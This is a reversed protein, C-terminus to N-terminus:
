AKVESSREKLLFNGFAKDETQMHEALWNYLLVTFEAAHFQPDFESRMEMDRVKALLNRHFEAHEALALYGALKMASEENFFHLSAFVFLESIAESITTKTAADDALFSDHVRKVMGMLKRHDQDINADGILYKEDDFPSDGEMAQGMLEDANMSM